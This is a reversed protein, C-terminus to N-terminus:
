STELPKPDAPRPVRPAPPETMLIVPELSAEAPHETDATGPGQRVGLLVLLRRRLLIVPRWFRRLLKSALPRLADLDPPDNALQDPRLRLWHKTLHYRDARQHSAFWRRGLRTGRPFGEGRMASLQFDVLHPRGELDVIINDAKNLDIIAVGRAHVEDLLQALDPFFADDPTDGAQLPKGPVYVRGFANPLAQGNATIGDIADPVGSLGDLREHFRQEKNSLHRGLWAFPVGFAPSTRCFKVVIQEGSEDRYLATAAFADHKYIRVRSWTQNQAEVTEPPEAHGLARLWAPRRKLEPQGTRGQDAKSYSM